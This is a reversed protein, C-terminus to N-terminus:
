KRASMVFKFAMEQIFSPEDLRKVIRDIKEDTIKFLKFLPALFVFSGYFNVIVESFSAKYSNLLKRDPMRLLTSRSRDRRLYHIFRNFRYILNQNYSDVCLFIGDKALVRYIESRVKENDGYSLSGCSVVVDFSQNDFPLGEIDAVQAKFRRNSKFLSSMLKVSHESIDTATVSAGTELLYGTFVGTGAGLELVRSNHDLYLKMLDILAVYPPTLYQPMSNLPPTWSNVGAQVLGEARKDYREKELEKDINM